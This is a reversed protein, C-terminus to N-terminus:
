KEKITLVSNLSGIDNPVFNPNSSDLCWVGDVVFKYQYEGPELRLQCRYIGEGKKDLMPKEPIWNNFNGAVMVTRGPVDEYVLNVYRLSCSKNTENKM